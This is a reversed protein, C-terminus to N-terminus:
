DPRKLGIILLATILVGCGIALLYWSWNHVLPIVFIGGHPVLLECGFLMSLAGTVAAGVVCVPIVRRDTAAFPIAGETVFFAGKLLGSKGNRRESASFGRSYLLTALGLALPPVMGAAMAAAAPLYSGAAIAIISFTYAIKNIPGGLDVTMLGGLCAGLLIKQLLTLNLLWIVLNQQIAAMPEMMLLAAGGSWLLGLVPYILIAKVTELRLTLRDLLWKILLMGYGGILGAVIGGLLGGGAQTLLFGAVMAPMLGIRDAISLGIFGAIVPALLGFAGQPGAITMLWSELGQIKHAVDLEALGFLNVLSILVGSAIVFPLINSVGNMIHRYLNGVWGSFKASVANGYYKKSVPSEQQALAQMLLEDPHGIADTVWAEIVRKNAFRHRDVKRDVALIVAEARSIEEATLQQKVGISGHTEVRLKIGLRQAADRLREAAMYTHSIGAPCSTVAAVMRMPPESETTTETSIEAQASDAQRATATFLDMVQQPSHAQLLKERFDANGLYQSVTSLIELHASDVEEPEAVLLFFRSLEGDLSDFDIGDRAVGLAIAAEDVFDSRAHPIAIGHQLGTSGSAERAQIAQLFQNRDKLKGARELIDVLEDLVAPKSRSQLDTCICDTSLLSLLVM